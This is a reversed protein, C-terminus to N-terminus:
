QALPISTSGLLLVRRILYGLSRIGHAPSSLQQFLGRDDPIPHSARGLVPCAPVADLDDLPDTRSVAM